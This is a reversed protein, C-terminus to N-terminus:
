RRLFLRLYEQTFLTEKYENKALIESSIEKYKKENIKKFEYDRKFDGIYEACYTSIKDELYDLIEPTTIEKRYLNYYAKKAIEVGRNGYQASLSHGYEHIVIDQLRPSAFIGGNVINKESITKDRLIKKNLTINLDATSAFDEDPLNGITLSVKKNIKLPYKNIAYQLSDIQQKLLEPNGDFNKVGVLNIRKEKAYNVFEQQEKKSFTRTETKSWDNKSEAAMKSINEKWEDFRLDHEGNALGNLWKEYVKRDSHPATSCHCNSTVIGNAIYLTSLSSADYVHGSYFCRQIDIIDDIEILTAFTDSLYRSNDMLSSFSNFFNENFISNSQSNRNVSSLSLNILSGNDSIVSGAHTTQSNGILIFDTTTNNVSYKFLRADYDSARRLSILDRSTASSRFFVSGKDFRGMFGDFALGIRILLKSLSGDRSLVSERTEGTGILFSDSIFKSMLTNIKDGLKGDVFIINIKSNPIVDGKLDISAAPVCCTTSGQAEIISAFLNEITPTRNNDTPTGITRSEICGRYCFVKDGKILNKARIWGRSTPVIHNPTVTVNRGNATVFKIVDGSYDSKTIAEIGPAIIETDPLVCNPHMPPANEGIEMDKLKFIQKDLVKCIPCVDRLGCAVYEYENIGNAEYSEAQAQIRVRTLETRLLREAQYRTVDFSKRVKPIFERPNRGQILATSLIGYLDNKLLDQQSWIRESFTANKFSSNAITKATKANDIITDGLIGANRQIQELAAGELKEKTFSVLEDSGATLELGINAKLLELRNVKMALNYLRMQENAEKSFDKEKVYKKAKKEYEKIDIDSAKRKAEAMSMGEKNSYRVFFSEIEKNIQTLMTSYIDQIEQIYEAEDKLDAKKWERERKRWYNSSKSM